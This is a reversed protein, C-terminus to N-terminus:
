EVVYLLKETWVIAFDAEKVYDSENEFTTTNYEALAQPWGDGGFSSSATFIKFYSTRDINWSSYNNLVYEYFGILKDMTAKRLTGKDQYLEAFTKSESLKNVLMTVGNFVICRKYETELMGISTEMAGKYNKVEVSKASTIWALLDVKTNGSFETLSKNNACGDFIVKGNQYASVIGGAYGNNTKIVGNNVCDKLTVTAGTTGKTVQCLIGAARSNSAATNEVKANNVLSILQINDGNIANGILGATNSDSGVVVSNGDISCNKVTANAKIQGILGGVVKVGSVNANTLKVNEITAGGVYGFLGVYSGSTINLKSVNHNDGNFHGSFARDNTGIPTWNAFASLDIDNVLKYSATLLPSGSVAGNIKDRILGLEMANSILYPSEETGDGRFVSNEKNTAKNAGNTDLTLSVNGGHKLEKADDATTLAKGIISNGQKDIKATQATTYLVNVISDNEVVFHGKAIEAYSIIGDVVHFSSGAVETINAEQAYGYFYVDDSPANVSLKGGNMRIVVDQKGATNSYNVKTIETHEGVDLGTKIDLTAAYTGAALYNSYKDSLTGDNAIHWLEVPTADGKTNSKPIYNIDNGKRYVFCDNRSDWLIEHKEGDTSARANIKSVDFGNAKTAELAQSMTKHPNTVDIALAENLNRVLSEDAAVLSKNILSSFTPILVAALIAIVAIVIILEVITFGRKKNSNKM